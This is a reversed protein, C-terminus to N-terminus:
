LHISPNSSPKGKHADAHKFIVDQELELRSQIPLESDFKRNVPRDKSSHSVSQYLLVFGSPVVILQLQPQLRQEPSNVTSQSKISRNSQYELQNFRIGILTELTLILLSSFSSISSLSCLLKRRRSGGM